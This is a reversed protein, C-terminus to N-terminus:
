RTYRFCAHPRARRRRRMMVVLAISLSVGALTNNSSFTTRCACGADETESTAAAGPGSPTAGAAGGSPAGAAGGTSPAPCGPNGDCNEDEPSDCDESAGPNVGPDNDNCDVAEDYGDGDQDVAAPPPSTGSDCSPIVNSIPATDSEEIRFEDTYNTVNTVLCPKNVNTCGSRYVGLKLYADHGAHQYGWDGNYEFVKADNLYLKFFGSGDTSMKFDAGFRMWTGAPPLPTTNDNVVNGGGTDCQGKGTQGNLVVRLFGQRARLFLHVFTSGATGKNGLSVDCADPTTNHVQLFVINKDDSLMHENPFLTAWGFIYRRGMDLHRYQTTSNQPSRTQLILETRYDDPLNDTADYISVAKASYKGKCAFDNSQEMVQVGSPSDIFGWQKTVDGNEGVNSFDEFGDHWLPQEALLPRSTLLLAAAALYRLPTVTAQMM